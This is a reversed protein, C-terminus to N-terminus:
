EAIGNQQPTRAVTSHYTIGHETCYSQMQNSFYEGGNDCYLINLKSNFQAEAKAVYDKCHTFVESKEKMLYVVLYHTFHDIFTVFYSKKTRTKPSM